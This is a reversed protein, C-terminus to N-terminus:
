WQWAHGSEGNEFWNTNPDGGGFWKQVVVQGTAQLEIRVELFDNRQNAFRFAGACNVSGDSRFAPGRRGPPCASSDTWGVVAHTGLPATDTPGRLEITRPLFYSRAFIRDGDDRAQNENRDVYGWFSGTAVDYEVIAERGEKIAEFRAVQLLAAVERAASILRTRHLTGLMWPTILLAMLGLIALVILLELLSFGNEKKSHRSRNM